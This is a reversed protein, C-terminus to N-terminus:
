GKRNRGPSTAKVASAKQPLPRDGSVAAVPLEIRISTGHRNRGIEATGPGLEDRAPEATSGQRLSRVSLSGGLLAVRERLGSLGYCDRREQAEQLDFGVGDDEIQLSLVGDAMEMSLNVRGASSYKSINHFCEQILRYVLIEVKKPLDIRRPLQLAVDTTPHLDRFRTVVQRLGAALGMQELVAPSLAAILRRIEVISHDVLKRAEIIREQAAAPESHLDQEAMELQLRVCLLSQGAEDHL